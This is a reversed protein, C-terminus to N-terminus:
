FRYTLKVRFSRGDQEIIDQTHEAFGPYGYHKDFVNYIGASIELGERLNLCTLTMNSILYDDTHHDALTKRDGNYQMELGAFLKEKVIPIILNGKVLHRPSNELKEGTEGDETHVLAYSLRSKWGNDWKGDLEFEVGQAKVQDLNEFILLGDTPDIKQAILDDMEYYFGSVSGLIQRTLYQELVVEYTDITEPDLDPSQKATYGGDDYYLEYVTPSRFATGYMLKVTTKAFPNYIAALRPNTTGGFADYRDYRIGGNLILNDLIKYEDQAFVGWSKSHRQDDLFVTGEEDWSAQDQRVHYRMEVGTTITHREIQTYTFQWEGQWFRAKWYDSNLVRYPEPDTEEAYDYPWRGDYNSHNYTVRGLVSGVESFEHDYTLGVMVRDDYSVTAPDGFISDWPATPIEKKRSVSAAELTFDRWTLKAFLNNFKDEDLDVYGNNTLPDDFEKIYLTDGDSKYLTSSLYLDVDEGWKKGFSARGKKTDFSGLEGSLELGSNQAGNKTIVNIVAFLANSGYLSSGPGRIIEVREITDVDLLFDTGIAASDDVGENTRHGDVLVLVRINYDGPRGFGRIGMYHYNRDYNLYFGRASNIIDALTRYGYLKIEEATVITVSSPAETVKQTHKSASYVTDVEVEMLDELSMDVLDEEPGANETPVQPPLNPDQGWIVAPFVACWVLLFAQMIRSRAISYRKLM